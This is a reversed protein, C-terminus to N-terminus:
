WWAVGPQHGRRDGMSNDVLSRRLRWSKTGASVTFATLAQAREQLQQESLEGSSYAEELRWLHRRYRHRSRSNLQIHTPFVRCGLMNVGHRTQNFYAKCDLNLEHELFDVISETLRKMEASECGWVIINNIYRVFGGARLQEKIFRDCRGLYFNAFHQSTLSGIPLGVGPSVEYCRVIRELLKLLPADKFRTALQELLRPHLISDFYKRIDLKAFWAFKRSYQKTTLLCRERGKGQRCAYTHDILYRELVPECVNMIAHHLVREEFCPATILRKKPDHITFQHYRGLTVGGDFVQQRLRSLNADLNATFERADQRARKGRLAKAVALRLNDWEVIQPFLNRARRM